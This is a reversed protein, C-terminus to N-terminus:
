DIKHCMNLIEFKSIHFVSVSEAPAEDRRGQRKMSPLM